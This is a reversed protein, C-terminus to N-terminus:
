SYVLTRGMISFLKDGPHERRRYIRLAIRLAYNEILVLFEADNTVLVYPCVIVEASEKAPFHVSWIAGLSGSQWYTNPGSLRFGSNLENVRRMVHFTSGTVKHAHTEDPDDFTLDNVVLVQQNASLAAGVCVPLPGAFAHVSFLLIGSLAHFVRFTARM